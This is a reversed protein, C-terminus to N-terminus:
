AEEVAHNAEIRKTGAGSNSILWDNFHGNLRSPHALHIWFRGDAKVAMSNFRFFDGPFMDQILRQCNKVYSDTNGLFFVIRVSKPLSTLYTLACTRVINPIEDFSKSILPGTCAYVDTGSKATAKEDRRSVSCRILSGFAVNSEPDSIKQDSTERDTLVGMAQLAQTLRPRMGAFAIDEFRKKKYIGAQTAGKSFGLVLFDPNSSGWAGPDNVMRWAPHPTVVDGQANAFCARCSIKGHTSLM